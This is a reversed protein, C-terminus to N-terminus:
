RSRDQRALRERQERLDRQRRRWRGYIRRARDDIWPLCYILALVAVSVAIVLMAKSM